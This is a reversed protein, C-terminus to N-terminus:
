SLQYYSFGGAKIVPLIKLRWTDPTILGTAHTEKMIVRWNKVSRDEFCTKVRANIDEFYYSSPMLCFVRIIRNSTSKYINLIDPRILPRMTRLQPNFGNIGIVGPAIILQGSDRQAEIVLNDIADSGTFKHQLYGKAVLAMLLFCFFVLFVQNTWQFLQNNGYTIVPKKIFFNISKILLLVLLICLLNEENFHRLVVLGLVMLIGMFALLSKKERIYILLLSVILIPTLLTSFNLWRNIIARLLLSPLGSYILGPIYFYPDLEQYIQFIVAFVIPISTLTFLQQGYVFRNDITNKKFKPLFLISGLIFFLMVPFFFKFGTRLPNENDSILLNHTEMGRIRKKNGQIPTVILQKNKDLLGITADHSNVRAPISPPKYEPPAPLLSNGYYMLAISLVLFIFFMGSFLRINKLCMLGIIPIAGLIFAACWVAHVGALLGGVVGAAAPRECALLSLGLLAWYMGTQGFQCYMVPFGVPYGHPLPFVYFLLFFPCIISIIRSRTYAFSAAAVAAFSIASFAGTVVLSLPWSKFGALLLLAPVTIQLSPAQFIYVGWPSKDYPVIGAWAQAFDVAESWFPNIFFGYLFGLLGAGILVWYIESSQAIKVAPFLSLRNVLKAYM